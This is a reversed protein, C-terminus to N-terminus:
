ENDIGGKSQTIINDIFSGTGIVVGGVLLVAIYEKITDSQPQLIIYVLMIALVILWNVLYIKKKLM